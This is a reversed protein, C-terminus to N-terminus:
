QAEENPNPEAMEEPRNAAEMKIEAGSELRKRRLPFQRGFGLSVAKGMAAEPPLLVNADFVLDFAIQHVGKFSVPRSGRIEHLNVEIREESDWGLGWLCSLLHNRLLAELLHAREIFNKASQWVQYNTQNLALYQCVQYRKPEALMRLENEQMRLDEVMLAQTRGEWRINWDSSALVKQLAEVGENVAFIAAKGKRVRYQIVPYRYHYKGDGRHNHFRDDEWGAMEIFAARWRPIQRAYLPLNFSLILTRVVQNNNKSPTM